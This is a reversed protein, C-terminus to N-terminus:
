VSWVVASTNVHSTALLGTIVELALRKHSKGLEILGPNVRRPHLGTRDPVEQILFFWRSDSPDGGEM